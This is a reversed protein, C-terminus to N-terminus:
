RKVVQVDGGSDASAFVADMFEHRQVADSFTPYAGGDAFSEYLRGINQAALPLDLNPQLEVVKTTGTAYDKLRVQYDEAGLNLMISSGTLRIQGKDGIVDWVLGEGEEFADGGRFNYTYKLGSSMVGQLSAYDDATKPVNTEVTRDGDLINVFPWTTKLQSSVSTPEGFLQSIPDFTHGVYITLMVQGKTGQAVRDKFYKYRQVIQTGTEGTTASGSIQTVLPTGIKGSDILDRLTAQIHSVRGQLGIITRVGKKEALTELEKAEDTSVGLPWEVYVDKGAEIAPKILKYHSFVAVACVVLDVDDAACMSQVSDFAKASKFGYQQIAQRSTQISSNCIATVKYKTTTQLYPLHATAAWGGSTSLGIIGVRIPQKHSAM